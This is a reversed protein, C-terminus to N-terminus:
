KKIIEYLERSKENGIYKCYFKDTIIDPCDQYEIIIKGCSLNEIGSFYDKLDKPSYLQPIHTIFLEDVYCNKLSCITTFLEISINLKKLSKPLKNVIINKSCISLETISDPLNDISHTFNKGIKLNKLNIPLNDLTQSFKKGLSIKKLNTPLNNIELNYNSYDYFEIIELSEPLYDLSQSFISPLYIIKLGNPLNNIPQNFNSDSHFLLIELQTPLNNLPKNYEKGFEIYEVCNPLEFESNFKEGWTIKKLNSLWVLKKLNIPKNFNMSFYIHEVNEVFSLKEEIQEIDIIDLHFTFLNNDYYKQKDSPNDFKFKSFNNLKNTELQQKLIGNIFKIVQTSLEQGEIYLRIKNDPSISLENFSM